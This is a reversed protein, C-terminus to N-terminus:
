HSDGYSLIVKTIRILTFDSQRSILREGDVESGGKEGGGEGGKMLGGRRPAKDPPRPLYRSRPLLSVSLFLVKQALAQITTQALAHRHQM